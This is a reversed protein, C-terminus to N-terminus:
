FLEGSGEELATILWQGRTSSMVEEVQLRFFYESEVTEDASIKTLITNVVAQNGRQDHDLIEVSVSDYINLELASIVGWTNTYEELADGEIGVVSEDSTSANATEIFSNVVEVPPKADEDATSEEDEGMIGEVIEDALEEATKEEHDFGEEDIGEEAVMGQEEDESCGALLFGVLSVALCLFIILTTRKFM